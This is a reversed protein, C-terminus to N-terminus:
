TYIVFTIINNDNFLEKFGINQFVRISAINETKVFAKFTKNQYKGLVGKLLLIGLGLKRYNKDVSYDIVWENEICEIRVQGIPDSYKNLCIYIHCKDDKIKNRFWHQHEVWDIVNKNLSHNRVEKDNVWDFLLSMDELEAHRFSFSHKPNIFSHYLVDNYVENVKSHEILRCEQKFGSNALAVYLNPRVDFAYTFIKHLNIEKFAVVKILNLYAEWYKIFSDEKSTDIVFSIEANNDVWNIHVLGGYGVCIEGELFSFLIQSPKLDDFLKSVVNEFYYDQEGKTLIKSQRLHYIQQNRWNMIEYRDEFRIPVLSFNENNFVQNNLLKYINM